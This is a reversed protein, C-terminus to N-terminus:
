VETGRVFCLVGLAPTYCVVARGLPNEKGALMKEPPVAVWKGWATRGTSDTRLEADKDGPVAEVFAEYGNAGVRTDVPRCDAMSCCGIGTGPQKLSNFWPALTPDANEPPAGWAVSAVVTVALLAAIVLKLCRSM